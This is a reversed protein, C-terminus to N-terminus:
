QPGAPHDPIAGVEHAGHSGKGVAPDIRIYDIVLEAPKGERGFDAAGDDM